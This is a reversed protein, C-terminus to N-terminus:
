RNGGLDIHDDVNDEPSLGKRQKATELREHVSNDLANADEFMRTVLEAEEDTLLPHSTFEDLLGYLRHTQTLLQDVAKLQEDTVQSISDRENM